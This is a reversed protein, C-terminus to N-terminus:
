FPSYTYLFRYFHPAHPSIWERGLRGRGVKQVEAIVLTGEDESAAIEKAISNTSTVEEFYHIKKGLLTTKLGMQIEEPYLLQPVSKLVYGRKPSSEIEYGDAQLSKIYKWVMTRSIGLKLGLEEGSVPGKQADKLAKIIRSRKDGM